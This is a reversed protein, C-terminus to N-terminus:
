SITGLGPATLSTQGQATIAGGPMVTVDAFAPASMLVFAASVAATKFTHSKM